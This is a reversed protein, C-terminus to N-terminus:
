NLFNSRQLFVAEKPVGSTLPTIMYGKSDTPICLEFDSAKNLKPYNRLM